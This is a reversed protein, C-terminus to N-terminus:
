YGLLESAKPTTRAYAVPDMYGTGSNTVIVKTINGDVVKPAAHARAGAEDIASEM